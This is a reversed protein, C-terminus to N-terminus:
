FPLDDDADANIQDVAEDEEDDDTERINNIEKLMSKVNGQEVTDINESFEAEIVKEKKIEKIMTIYDKTSFIVDDIKIYVKGEQNKEFKLKM